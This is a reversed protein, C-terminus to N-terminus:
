NNLVHRTTGSKTACNQKEGRLVGRSVLAIHMGCQQANGHEFALMWGCTVLLLLLLSFSGLLLRCCKSILASCAAVACLYKCCLFSFCLLCFFFNNHQLLCCPLHSTHRCCFSSLKCRWHYINGGNSNNASSDRRWRTYACM